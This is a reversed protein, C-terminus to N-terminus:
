KGELLGALKAKIAPWESSIISFYVTDRIRGSDTIVHCRAIGEETAGIRRIARRSKENLVDTRFEVRNIKLTEFAHTLLLFKCETNARTRQHSSTLWTWGIELRRHAMEINAYRTSGIVQGTPKSMVVFPVSVGRRQEDLANSVYTRMTEVSTIPTSVWRWLEPELGVRALADVHELTLPELHVSSGRLTLPEIGEAM